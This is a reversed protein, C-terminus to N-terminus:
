LVACMDETTDLAVRLEVTPDASHAGMCRCTAREGFCMANAITTLKTYTAAPPSSCLLNIFSKKEVCPGM